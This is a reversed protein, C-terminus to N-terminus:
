SLGNGKEIKEEASLAVTGDSLPYGGKLLDNIGPVFADMKREALLSLMKPIEVRFLFPDVGDQPTQKAPNLLGFAVLGAGQRGEYYGEMAALKMPQKQAVQYGSGDGTWASLVAACLGVWAAIKVSALAFKKELASLGPM